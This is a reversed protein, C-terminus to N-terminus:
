STFGALLSALFFRCVEALVSKVDLQIPKGAYWFAPIVLIWFSATWAVAICAPGCPLAVLFLLFTFSFEVIGWRFLRDATGISLHIWGHTGYLLMIGIGAWLLHLYPGVRGM